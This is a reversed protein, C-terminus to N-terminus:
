AQQLREGLLANMSKQDSAVKARLQQVEKDESKPNKLLHALALM